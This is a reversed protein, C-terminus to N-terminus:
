LNLFEKADKPSGLRIFKVHPLCHANMLKTYRYKNNGYNKFFWIIISDRSLFASKFSEKNGTKPWLEKKSIIRCLTRTMLQYFTRPYSYDLWIITDVNQWKITNTRSYNGDLVWANGSVAEAIKATFEEDSSEIWNPQWFLQDMQIYSYDLKKALLKSFSSKGSGTTGIVNIKKM